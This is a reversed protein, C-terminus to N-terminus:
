VAEAVELRITDKTGNRKSSIVPRVDANFQPILKSSVDQQAQKQMVRDFEENILAQVGRLEDQLKRRQDALSQMQEDIRQITVMKAHAKQFLAVTPSHNAVSSSTNAVAASDNTGM